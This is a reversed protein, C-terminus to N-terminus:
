VIKVPSCWPAIRFLNKQCSFSNVHADRVEDSVPDFRGKRGLPEFHLVFGVKVGAMGAGPRPAFRMKAQEDDGGGKFALRADGALPRDVLRQFGFQRAM